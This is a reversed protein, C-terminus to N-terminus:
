NCNIVTHQLHMCMTNSNVDTQGDFVHVTVFRFLRSGFIRIGYLLVMWRTKQCSSLNIPSSGKYTFNLALSVGSIKFQNESNTGWSYCKTFFTSVLLFDVICKGILRLYGTYKARLPPPEFVCFPQYLYWNQYTLTTMFGLPLSGNTEVLGVLHLNNNVLPLQM